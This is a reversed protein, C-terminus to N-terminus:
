VGSGHGGGDLHKECHCPGHEIKSRETRKDGEVQSRSGYVPKRTRQHPEPASYGDLQEFNASDADIIKVVRLSRDRGTVKRVTPRALKDRWYRPNDRITDLFRKPDASAKHHDATMSIPSGTARGRRFVSVKPGVLPPTPLGAGFLVGVQPQLGLRVGRRQLGEAGSFPPRRGVLPPTPLGAGFPLVPHRPERPSRLGVTGAAAPDPSGRRVSFLCGPATAAPHQSAHGPFAEGRSHDGAM